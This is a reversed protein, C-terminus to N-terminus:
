REGMTAERLRNAELVPLNAETPVYVVTRDRSDDLKNIWLYRLYADNGKLSDGIIKNAEAVGKAREVEAEALLKAADRQALAQRVLVQRDQEARAYSARGAMEASYVSYQPCGYLGGATLVVFLLTGAISLTRTTKADM